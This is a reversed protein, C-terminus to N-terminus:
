ALPLNGGRCREKERKKQREKYYEQSSLVMCLLCKDKNEGPKLATTPWMHIFVTSDTFDCIQHLTSSWVLCSHGLDGERTYASDYALCVGRGGGAPPGSWQAAPAVLRRPSVRLSTLTDEELYAFAWSILNIVAM